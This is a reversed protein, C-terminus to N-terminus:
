PIEEKTKSYIVRKIKLKQDLKNPQIFLMFQPILIKKILKLMKLRTILM